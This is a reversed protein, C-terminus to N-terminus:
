GRPGRGVSSEHEVLEVFYERIGGYWAPRDSHRSRSVVGLVRESTAFAITELDTGSYGNCIPAPFTKAPRLDAFMAKVSDWPRWDRPPSWPDCHRYYTRLDDPLTSGLTKEIEAIEADSHGEMCALRVRLEIQRARLWLFFDDNLDPPANYTM